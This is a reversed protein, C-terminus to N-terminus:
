ESKFALVSAVWDSSGTYTTSGTQTTLGATLIRCWVFNGSEQKSNDAAVGGITSSSHTGSTYIGMVGCAVGDTGTTSFSGTTISSGSGSNERTGSVDKTVTEGSGPRYQMVVLRKFPRSQSLTATFTAGTHATASLRYGPHMNITFTTPFHFEDGADFTFTNAGAGDDVVSVTTAADDDEYTINAILLDGAAIDLTTSTSITTSSSDASGSASAVFTFAGGGGGGGSASTAGGSTLTPRFGTTSLILAVSLCLSLLRRLIIGRHRM